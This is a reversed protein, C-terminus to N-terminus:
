RRKSLRQKVAGILLPWAVTADAYVEAWRGGEAHPVFKGWSVGESYTCGSLGGWHVPEPCIRIGYQYRRMPFEDTRLRKNLIDLYPGVQQAWNRPVGGGITVIGLMSQRIVRDTFDDLDFYSDFFLPALNQRKRRRLHIGVDLGLESDTFAPIYIPVEHEFASKLVGRCNPDLQALHRGLERSITVSALPMTPDWDWLLKSVLRETDDLNREMELTDYVRNYGAEYLQTDNMSPDYKYHLMGQTEVLGHTILAGTAVIAQIMKSEIMDCIVLGMKGVTMAGSLTLVVWCDPDLVMKELIDAAEGLSRGSFATHSMQRLLDDLDHIKSLDLSRTPILGDKAGDRLMSEDRFRGTM